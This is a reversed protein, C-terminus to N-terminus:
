QQECESFISSPLADLGWADVVARLREFIMGEAAFIATDFTEKNIFGCM